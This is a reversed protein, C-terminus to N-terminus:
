HMKITETPMKSDNDKMEQGTSIYTVVISCSQQIWQTKRTLSMSILKRKSQNTLTITHWDEIISICLVILTKSSPKETSPSLMRSNVAKLIHSVWITILQHKKVKQKLPKRSIRLLYSWSARGGIASVEISAVTIFKSKTIVTQLQLRQSIRSQM